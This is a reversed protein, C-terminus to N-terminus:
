SGALFGLASDYHIREKLSRPYEQRRSARNGVRVSGRAARQFLSNSAAIEKRQQTKPPNRTVTRTSATSVSGRFTCCPYLLHIRAGQIAQKLFRSVVALVALFGSSAARVRFIVSDISSNSAMSRDNSQSGTRKGEPLKPLSCPVNQLGSM